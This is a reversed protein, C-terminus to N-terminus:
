SGIDRESEYAIVSSEILRLHRRMREKQAAACAIEEDCLRIGKRLEAAEEKM